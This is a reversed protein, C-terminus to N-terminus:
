HVVPTNFTIWSGVKRRGRSRQRSQALHRSIIDTEAVPIQWNPHSPERTAHVGAAPVSDALAWLRPGTDREWRQMRTGETAMPLYNAGAWPSTYLPSEDGPLHEAVVTISYRSTKSEVLQLASTLAIVGGSYADAADRM